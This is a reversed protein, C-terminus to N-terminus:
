RRSIMEQVRLPLVGNLASFIGLVTSCYGHRNREHLCEWGAQCHFYIIIDVSFASMGPATTSSICCSRSGREPESRRRGDLFLNQCGAAWPGENRDTEM